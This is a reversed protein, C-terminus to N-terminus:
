ERELLIGIGPIIGIELIIGVLIIGIIIELIIGIFRIDDLKNM